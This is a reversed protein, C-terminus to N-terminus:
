FSIPEFPVLEFWEESLEFLMFHTTLVVFAFQYRNALFHDFELLFEIFEALLIVFNHHVTFFQFTFKVLQSALDLLM